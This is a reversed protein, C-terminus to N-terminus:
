SQAFDCQGDARGTHYTPTHDIRKGRFNIAYPLLAPQRLHIGRSYPTWVKFQMEMKEGGSISIWGPVTDRLLEFTENRICSLSPM